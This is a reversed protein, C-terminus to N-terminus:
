KLVTPVGTVRQLESLHRHRLDFGLSNFTEIPAIIQAPPPNNELWKAYADLYDDVTLLGAARITGGFTHNKVMLIEATDREIGTMELARCVVGYGFESSLLLTKGHQSLITQRINEARVPDFDYEMTIGSDGEHENVWSFAERRCDKEVEVIMKGSPVLMNWADVRSWPMKGNVSRIVDGRRIGADWAHSGKLVGSVVPILDYVCSPEILVPCSLDPSLSEIFGKLESYIEEGDPFIDPRAKSSSAPMFIRISTTKNGALFEVTDRIDGWGTINPMAVMSSSFPIGSGALLRIGELTQESSKKTDGMLLKRGRVSASNLSINLSINGAAELFEIMEKALHKGSTTIEVPTQPYARRVLSIIEKFQPHTFPEGEIIPTASEGITIVQRPNLFALTRTIDEMSRVGVSLVDIGPPNNKHSCFICRSDCRSTIPLINAEIASNLILRQIEDSTTKRM